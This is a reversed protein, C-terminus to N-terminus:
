IQHATEDESLSTRRRFRPDFIEIDHRAARGAGAHRVANAVNPSLSIDGVVDCQLPSGIPRSSPV